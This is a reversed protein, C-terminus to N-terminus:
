LLPLPTYSLHNAMMPYFKLDGRAGAPARRHRTDIKFFFTNGRLRVSGLPSNKAVRNAITLITLTKIVATCVKSAITFPAGEPARRHRTDIKFITGRARTQRYWVPKYRTDTKFLLFCHFLLKFIQM